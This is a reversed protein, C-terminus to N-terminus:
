IGFADGSAMVEKKDRCTHRQRGSLVGELLCIKGILLSVSLISCGLWRHRTSFTVVAELVCLLLLLHAFSFFQSGGGRNAGLRTGVAITEAPFCGGMTGMAM